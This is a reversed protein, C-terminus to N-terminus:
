DGLPARPSGSWHYRVDPAGEENNGETSEVEVFGHREYFRRARTNTQFTWLSLGSPVLTKAHDVLRTGTGNGTWEPDVFLQDLEGDDYLMMVAVIQGSREAVWLKRMAIVFRTWDSVKEDSHVPPPIAPVSARRSRLWLGACAGTEELRALRIVLPESTKM